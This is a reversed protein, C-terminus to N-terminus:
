KKKIKVMGNKNNITDKKKNTKNIKLEILFNSKYKDLEEFIKKFYSYIPEIILRNTMKYNYIKNEDRLYYLLCFIKLIYYFPIIYRVVFILTECFFLISFLIWYNLIHNYEDFNRTEDENHVYEVNSELRNKIIESIEETKNNLDFDKEDLSGNESQGNNSELNKIENSVHIIKNKTELLHFTLYGPYLVIIMNTLYNALDYSLCNFFFIIFLIHYYGYLVKQLEESLLLIERKKFIFNM